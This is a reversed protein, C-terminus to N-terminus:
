YLPVDPSYLWHAALAGAVGTTVAVVRSTASMALSAIEGGASAAGAGVYYPPVGLEGALLLNGAAVGVLAGGFLSLAFAPDV